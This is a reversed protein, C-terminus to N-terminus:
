KKQLHIIMSERHGTTGSFLIMELLLLYLIYDTALQEERNCVAVNDSRGM